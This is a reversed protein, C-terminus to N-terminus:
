DGCGAYRIRNHIPHRARVYTKELPKLIAQLASGTSASRYALVHLQFKGPDARLLLDFPVSDIYRLHRRNVVILARQYGYLSAAKGVYASRGSAIEVYEYIIGFIM